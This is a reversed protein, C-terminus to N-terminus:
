CGSDGGVTSVRVGQGSDRHSSFRLSPHQGLRTVRPVGRRAPHQSRSQGWELVQAADSDPHTGDGGGRTQHVSLGNSM